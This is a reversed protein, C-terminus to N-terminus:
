GRDMRKCDAGDHCRDPVEGFPSKQLSHEVIRRYLEAILGHGVAFDRQIEVLERRVEGCLEGAVVILLPVVAVIEAVLGPLLVHHAHLELSEVSRGTGNRKLDTGGGVAGNDAREDEM